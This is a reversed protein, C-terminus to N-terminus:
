AVHVALYKSLVFKNRGWSESLAEEELQAIVAPPIFAFQYFREVVQKTYSSGIDCKLREIDM